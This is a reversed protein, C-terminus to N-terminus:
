RRRRAERAKRRAEIDENSSVEGAAQAAASPGATMERFRQTWFKCHRDTGNLVNAGFIAHMDEDHLPNMIASTM